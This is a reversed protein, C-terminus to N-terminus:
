RQAEPLINISCRIEARLLAGKKPVSPVHVREINLHWGVPLLV